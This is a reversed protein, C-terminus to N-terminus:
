YYILNLREKIIIFADSPPLIHEFTQLARTVNKEAESESKSLRLALQYDYNESFYIQACLSTNKKFM